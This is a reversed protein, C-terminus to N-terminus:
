TPAGGYTAEFSEHQPGVTEYNADVRGRHVALRLLINNGENLQHDLWGVCPLERRGSTEHCAMIRLPGAALSGPTAITCALARHKERDYGDPIETPDTSRKWPCKRCQRRPKKKTM